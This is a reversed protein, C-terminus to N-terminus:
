SDSSGAKDSNRADNGNDDLSGVAGSNGQRALADAKSKDKELDIGADIVDSLTSYKSGTFEDPEPMATDTVNIDLLEVSENRFEEQNIGGLTRAIGLSQLRRHIPDVDVRAFNAEIDKAGIALFIKRYFNRFDEQRSLAALQEPQSLATESAYSGGKATDATLAAVSVDLANAVAAQLPRGEYMDVSGARPMQTIETDPGTIAANGVRTDQMRAGAREAAALTKAKVQYAITALAKILKSADKMYETAAWAWPLASLCDPVGMVEGDDMNVRLDIIVATQSVPETKGGGVDIVKPLEGKRLGNKYQWVPIWEVFQEPKAGPRLDNRVSYARRWYKVRSPDNDYTLYNTVQEQLNMRTFKSTATDYIVFLSGATYLVRNLEKLATPSFLVEQNEPDDIINQFRAQIAEGKPRSFKFGRGVVYNNKLRLGRGLLNNTKTQKEAYKTIKKADDISLGKRDDDKGIDGLPLWGEDEMKIIADAMATFSERIVAVDAASGLGIEKYYRNVSKKLLEAQRTM